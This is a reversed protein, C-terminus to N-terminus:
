SKVLWESSFDYPSQGMWGELEELGLVGRLYSQAIPIQTNLRGLYFMAGNVPDDTAMKVREPLHLMFDLLWPGFFGGLDMAWQTIESDDAPLSEASARLLLQFLSPDDRAVRVATRFHDAPVTYPLSQTASTSEGRSTYEDIKLLTTLVEANREILATHIGQQIAERSFSIETPAVDSRNFGSAMRLIELFQAHSESFGADTGILFKDPIEMISFIGNTTQQETEFCNVTISVIPVISLTYHNGDKGTGKFSYIDGKQALMSRLSNESDSTMHINASFWHRYVTLRMLDPLHSLLREITCWRCRLVSTQLSKREDRDLPVYDVPRLLASIETAGPATAAAASETSTATGPTASDSMPTPVQTYSDDWFALLTLARYVRESSVAASISRSCRPLNVNLSYLFIKEILEVPLSELRSLRKRPKPPPPKTVLLRARKTGASQSSAQKAAPPIMPRGGKPGSAIPKPVGDSAAWPRKKRGRTRIPTLM